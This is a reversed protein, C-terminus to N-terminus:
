TLPPKGNPKLIARLHKADARVRMLSVVEAVLQVPSCRIPEIEFKEAEIKSLDLIDNIVALLHRGNHQITSVAERSTQRQQCM